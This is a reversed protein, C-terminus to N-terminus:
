QEEPEHTSIFRYSRGNFMSGWALGSLGAMSLRVDLLQVDSNFSKPYAKGKRYSSEGEAMVM